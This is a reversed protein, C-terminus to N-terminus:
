CFSWIELRKLAFRPSSGQIVCRREEVEQRLVRKTVESHRRGYLDRRLESVEPCFGVCEQGNPCKAILFTKSDLCKNVSCEGLTGKLAAFLLLLIELRMTASM